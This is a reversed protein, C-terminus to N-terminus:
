ELSEQTLEFNCKPCFIPVGHYKYRGGQLMLQLNDPHNNTKDGDIHHVVEDKKLARGIKESMVARHELVYGRSNANPHEPKYLYWYRNKWLKRGGKWNFSHGGTRKNRGVELAKLRKRFPIKLFKEIEHLSMEKDWYLKHLFKKRQPKAMEALSKVNRNLDSQRKPLRSRTAKRENLRQLQKRKNHTTMGVM